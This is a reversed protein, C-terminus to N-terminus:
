STRFLGFFYQGIGKISIANLPFELVVHLFSLGIATMFGARYDILFVSAFALWLAVIIFAKHGRIGNSWGILSTKSFWNLYHYVYAFAIFRQVKLEWGGYFMFSSGDSVGIMKGLEISLIHFRNEVVTTKVWDSFNYFSGDADILAFALPALLMLGTNAYGITSKSKLAGYLMFLMTFIYVHILTPILLAVLIVWLQNSRALLTIGVGVILSVLIGKNSQLFALSFAVWLSLFLLENSLSDMWIILSGLVPYSLLGIQASLKPLTLFGVVFLGLWLWPVRPEFYKKENLWNIETLYHLPGLIAYSFLFLRFPLLYALFVSLVILVTNAVDVKYIAQSKM